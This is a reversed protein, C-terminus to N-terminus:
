FLFVYDSGYLINCFQRVQYEWRCLNCAMRDEEDGMLPWGYGKAARADLCTLRHCGLEEKPVLKTNIKWLRYLAAKIRERRAALSSGKLSKENKMSCLLEMGKEKSEGGECLLIIGYVYTAEKHGKAVAKKLNELGSEHSGDGFYEVMGLRYFAEANGSSKCREFFLAAGDSARWAIMPLKEMSAFEYIYDDDVAERFEKCSLKVNYLDNISSSGVRVFLETLLDNPLSKISSKSTKKMPKRTLTQAM